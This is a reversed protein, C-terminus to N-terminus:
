PKPRTRPKSIPINTKATTTIAETLELVIIDLFDTITLIHLNELMYGETDQDM